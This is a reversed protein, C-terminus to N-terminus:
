QTNWVKRGTQSILSTNGDNFIELRVPMYDRDEYKPDGGEGAHTQSAWVAHWRDTMHYLVLNGDDQMRLQFDTPAAGSDRTSGNGSSWITSNDATRVAQLQGRDSIEFYYEGNKSDLREDAGLTEGITLQNNRNAATPTANNMTAETGPSATGTNQGANFAFWLGFLVVALIGAGVLWIIPQQTNRPAAAAPTQYAQHDTEIRDYLIDLVTAEIRRLDSKSDEMGLMEDHKWKKFQGSLLIAEDYAEKKHAETYTLLLVIAKETQGNALTEEIQKKLETNEM